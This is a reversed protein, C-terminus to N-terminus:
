SIKLLLIQNRVLTPSLSQEKLLADVHKGDLSYNHRRLNKVAQSVLKRYAPNDVRRKEIRWSRDSPTGLDGICKKPILCRPCPCLGM